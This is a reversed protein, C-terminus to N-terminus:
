LVGQATRLRESSKMAAFSCHCRPSRSWLRCHQMGLTLIDQLVGGSPDLPIRVVLKGWMSLILIFWFSDINTVHKEERSQQWTNVGIQMSHGLTLFQAMRAFSPEGAKTKLLLQSVLLFYIVYGFLQIQLHIFLAWCLKLHAAWYQLSPRCSTFQLPSGWFCLMTEDTKKVLIAKKWHLWPLDVRIMCLVSSKGFMAFRPRHCICCCPRCSACPRQSLCFRLPRTSIPVPSYSM